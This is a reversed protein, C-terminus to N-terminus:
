FLSGWVCVCVCMETATEQAEHLGLVLTNWTNEILAMLPHQHCLNPKTQVAKTCTCVNLAHFRILNAARAFNFASPLAEFLWLAFGESHVVIHLIDRWRRKHQWKLMQLIHFSPHTLDKRGQLVPIKPLCYHALISRHYDPPHPPSLGLKGGLIKVLACRKFPGTLVPQSLTKRQLHGCHSQVLWSEVNPQWRTGSAQKDGSAPIDWDLAM